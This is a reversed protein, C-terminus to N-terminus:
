GDTCAPNTLGYQLCLTRRFDTFAWKSINEDTVNRFTILPIFHRNRGFAMNSYYGNLNFQDWGENTNYCQAIKSRIEVPIENQCEGVPFPARSLIVKISKEMLCGIYNLLKSKDTFYKVACGHLKNGECEPPGHQCQYQYNDASIVKVNGYPVLTLKSLLSAFDYDKQNYTTALKKLIFRISDSCLSEYYVTIPIPELYSYAFSTTLTAILFLQVIRAM